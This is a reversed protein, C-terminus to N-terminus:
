QRSIRSVGALTPAARSLGDALHTAGEALVKRLDLVKQLDVITPTPLGMRWGAHKQWWRAKALRRSPLLFTSPM